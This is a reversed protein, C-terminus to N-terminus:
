ENFCVLFNGTYLVESIIDLESVLKIVVLLPTKTNEIVVLFLCLILAIDTLVCM